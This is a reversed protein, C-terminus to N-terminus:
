KFYFSTALYALCPRASALRLAAAPEPRGVSCADAKLNWDSRSARGKRGPQHCWDRSHMIYTREFWWAVNSGRGRCEEPSQLLRWLLLQRGRLRALDHFGADRVDLAVFLEDTKWLWTQLGEEWESSHVEEREMRAGWLRAMLDLTAGLSDKLLHLTAGLFDILLDLTPGWSEVMMDSRPRAIKKMMLVKGNALIKKEPNSLRGGSQSGVM